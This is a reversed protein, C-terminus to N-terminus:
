FYLIINLGIFVRRVDSVIYTGRRGLKRIVIYMRKLHLELSSQNKFKFIYKKRSSVRTRTIYPLFVIARHEKLRTSCKAGYLELVIESLVVYIMQIPKYVNTHCYLEKTESITVFIFVWFFYALSCVAFSTPLHISGVEIRNVSSIIDNYESVTELLWIFNFTQV